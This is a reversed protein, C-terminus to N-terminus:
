RTKYYKSFSLMLFMLVLAIVAFKACASVGAIQATLDSVEVKLEYLLTFNEIADFLAALWVYRSLSVAFVNLRRNPTNIASKCLLSLL